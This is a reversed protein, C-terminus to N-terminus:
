KTKHFLKTSCSRSCCVGNKSRKERLRYLHPKLSITKGCNKCDFVIDDVKKAHHRAHESITMVKLNSIDNNNKDEDIHHVQEDKKLLHGIKNEVLVRHLPYLGKANAKPHIPNTKAYMYGGGKCVSIIEFM